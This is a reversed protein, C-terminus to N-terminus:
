CMELISEKIVFIIYDIDEDIYVIFIFCVLGNGGEWMYVGKEILKYFLIDM